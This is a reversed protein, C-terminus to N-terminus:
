GVAVSVPVYHWVDRVDARTQLRRAQRRRRHWGVQRSREAMARIMAEFGVAEISREPEPMHKSSASKHLYLQSETGLRRGAYRPDTIGDLAFRADASLYSATRASLEVVSSSFSAPLVRSTEQREERGIGVGPAWTRRNPLWVGGSRALPLDLLHVYGPM